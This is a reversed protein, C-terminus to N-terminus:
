LYYKYPIVCEREGINEYLSERVKPHQCDRKLNLTGKVCTVHLKLWFRNLSWPIECLLCVRQSKPLACWSWRTPEWPSKWSEWMNGCCDLDIFRLLEQKGNMNAVWSSSHTCLICITKTMLKSFQFTWLSVFFVFKLLKFMSIMSYWSSSILQVCMVPPKSSLLLILKSFEKPTWKLIEFRFKSSCFFTDCSFLNCQKRFYCYIATM